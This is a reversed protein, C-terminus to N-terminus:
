ENLFDRKMACEEFFFSISDMVTLDEKTILSYDISQYVEYAEPSNKPLSGIKAFIDNLYQEGEKALYVNHYKSDFLVVRANPNEALRNKLGVPSNEVRVTMDNGGHM